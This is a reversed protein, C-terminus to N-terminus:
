RERGGAPGEDGAGGTFSYAPWPGSLELRVAPFRQRLREVGEAFEGSREDAVLYSGNLIMWGQYDALRPDQPPHRVADEAQEALATHLRAAYDLATQQASDRGERQARRRMLYATGPRAGETTGGAAPSPEPTPPALTHPDVYAKVGWETRGALRELTAALDAHRETLLSRVRDDDHYVTAFRLPVVCGARAAAAIVGDHARAAGELWDLDELHDRLPEEAFDGLPVSGVVAALGAATVVRVPEGAVGGVGDFLGAGPAPLIAYLWTASPRDTM